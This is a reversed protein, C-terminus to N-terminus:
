GRERLTVMSTMTHGAVTLKVPVWYTGPKTRRSVQLRLVV